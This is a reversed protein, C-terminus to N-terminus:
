KFRKEVRDTIKATDLGLTIEYIKFLLWHYCGSSDMIAESPRGVWEHNHLEMRVEKFQWVWHRVMGLTM